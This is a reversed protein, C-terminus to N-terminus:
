ENELIKKVEKIIIKPEFDMCHIQSCEKQGECPLCDLNKNQLIVSKKSWPNSRETPTPGFLGIVPIDLYSSLHMISSDVAVVVKAYNALLFYAEAMDTKGVLNIVGPELQDQNFKQRDEALGLLVCNYEAQLKNVALILNEKSYEKRQSRSFCGFFIYKKQSSLNWKKTKAESILFQSKQRAPKPANKKIIKLYKDKIHLNKPIFRIMPTHKKVGLFIPLMSNKFDVMLDFQKRFILCFRIKGLIKWRKDFLIVQDIFNNRSLFDKTKLSVIATIRSKPFNAKIRDLAPLALIADGINTPFNIIIKDIKKM